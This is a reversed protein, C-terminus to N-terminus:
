RGRAIDPYECVNVPRLTRKYDTSWIPGSLNRQEILASALTIPSRPPRRGKVEGQYGSLLTGNDPSAASPVPATQGGGKGNIM